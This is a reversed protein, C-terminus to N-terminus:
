DAVHEDVAYRVLDLDLVIFAWHRGCFFPLFVLIRLESQPPDALETARDASASAAILV